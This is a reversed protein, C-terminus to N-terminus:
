PKKQDARELKAQTKKAHDTEEHKEFTAVARQWANRSEDTKGLAQYVDGLHDLIVGDPDKGEAAQELAALAQEHQGLRYHAWGLSDLYAKNKPDAAVAREIMDLARALRKNQDAWLYGLDNLAGINDPFEDLVQELWEEAAPLDDRLVCINSLVLRAERLVDRVDAAEYNDDFRAILDKYAAQADENRKAHYLIWCVRSAFQASDAKAEAARRAAALAEDTKGDLELAGALYYDFAARESALKPDEAGRRFVDVAAANQEAMLLGLGWSLLLPMSRDPQDQIALDYFKGATDFQDAEIALQAAVLAEGPKHEKKERRTRVLEFLGDLTPRDELIPKLDDQFLDLSGIKGVVETLVALLEEPKHLHRYCDILGRYIEPVVARRLKAALHQYIAEAQAFKEQDRLRDALFLGLPANDPDQTRLEEFRADIEDNQGTDTLLQVMLRYPEMGQSTLKHNFYESLKELADAAHGRKTEVRALYYGLLGPDAKSKAADGREFARQADDLRGAELFCNGLLEYTSGEEGEIKKLQEDSLHYSAPMDLADRVAGLAAAAQPYDGLLEFLGGAELRLQVAEFKKEAAEPRKLLVAYIGAARDFDRQSTLYQALRHESLYRPIGRLKDSHNPNSEASILAYRIAEEAHNDLSFAVVIIENLITVAKPDYRYAREFKRLAILSEGKQELVRGTAFLAAAHLRDLDAETRPRKPDLPELPDDLQLGRTPPAPSQESAAPAAAAVAGLVALAIAGALIPLAAVKTFVTKM